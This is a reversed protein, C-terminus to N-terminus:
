LHSRPRAPNSAGVTLMREDRYGIPDTFSMDGVLEFEVIVGLRDDGLEM